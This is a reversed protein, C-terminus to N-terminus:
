YKLGSQEWHGCNRQERLAAKMVLMNLSCVGALTKNFANSDVAVFMEESNALQKM